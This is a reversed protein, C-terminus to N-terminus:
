RKEAAELLPTFLRTCCHLFPPTLLADAALEGGFCLAMEPRRREAWSGPAGIGEWCDRLAKLGSGENRSEAEAYAWGSRPPVPWCQEGDGGQTLRMFQELLSEAQCRDPARLRAVEALADAERGILRGDRVPVGSALSLLLRAWLELRDAPQIRRFQVMVLTTGHLRSSTELEGWRCAREEGQGLPNLLATLRTWSRDLDELALTAGGQRPLEGSGLLLRSWDPRQEDTLPPLSEAGDLLTADLAEKLLQRGRPGLTVPDLDNVPEAWESVNLGRERLWHRQPARLWSVLNEWALGRQLRQDVNLAPCPQELLPLAGGSRELPQELRHRAALMRQDCSTPPRGGDGLFNFRDLPNATHVQLLGDCHHNLDQQLQDLWQQVPLAAPLGEGSREDRCTWTVILHQRASMVAELLAYRDQAARDPDGLRHQQDLLHFGPRLQHRPFCTADLGMLVIVRHPIARMPELASITLAGSRHGFRGSDACLDEELVDAVVAGTLERNCSAAREDWATIVRSLALAEGQRMGGRPAMGNVLILLHERWASVVRPQRLALLTDRLHLLLQLGQGLWSLDMALPCPAPTAAEGSTGESLVLGLLLRDLAWSFSHVPDGGRDSANCGWRFGALQLARHLLEGDESELGFVELLCPLSLVVQMESATLRAEALRLLRLLLTALSGKDDLSRDTVRWPLSVGTAGRDALVSGLLPAFRDVQPTMVLVHRPQLTSDSALLQLIRDRVIQIQRHRGPCAHFELSSDSPDRRLMPQQSRGVLQQQLQHLLTSRTQPGAEASAPLHFLSQDQSEGLQAEGTGELLQQFDAGLRGFRAELTPARQLWESDVGVKSAMQESLERRREVCRQWLDPGPTLLYIEVTGFGSLAKLLEIQVPALSSIGFLRLPPADAPWHAYGAQLAEIVRHARLGFPESDITEVLRRALLAQWSNAKSGSPGPRDRCWRTLEEVRYLAYDDLADALARALSWESRDVCGEPPAERGASLWRSLEQAERECMLDPLSSLIPWVLRDARWPDSQDTPEGLLESVLRRLRSGPFPFRVNASTGLALALRESLWRSTPWTNVMVELTQWPSPPAARLHEALLAALWEARNSRYVLLM